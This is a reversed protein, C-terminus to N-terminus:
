RDEDPEGEGTIDQDSTSTEIPQASALLSQKLDPMVLPMFLERVLKVSSREDFRTRAAELLQQQDNVLVKMMQSIGKNRSVFREVEGGDGLFARNVQRRKEVSLDLSFDSLQQTDFQIDGLRELAARLDGHFFKNAVKVVGNLLDDIAQQEQESIDGQISVDLNRQQIGEIQSFKVRDGGQTVGRASSKSFLELLNFNLTVRDGERTNLELSFSSEISRERNQVRLRQFDTSSLRQISTANETEGAGRQETKEASDSNPLSGTIAVLEPEAMAAVSPAEAVPDSVLVPASPVVPEAPVAPVAEVSLATATASSQVSGSVIGESSAPESERASGAPPGAQFSFAQYSIHAELSFRFGGQDFQVSQQSSYSLSARQLQVPDPVVATPQFGQGEGNVGHGETAQTGQTAQTGSGSETVPVLSRAVPEDTAPPPLPQTTDFANRFYGAFQVSAYSFAAQITM